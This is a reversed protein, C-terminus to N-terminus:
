QIQTFSANLLSELPSPSKLSRCIDLHSHPNLHSFFRQVCLRLVGNSSRNKREGPIRNFSRTYQLSLRPFATLNDAETIEHYTYQWTCMKYIEICTVQTQFNTLHPPTIEMTYVLFHSFRLNDKKHKLNVVKFTM